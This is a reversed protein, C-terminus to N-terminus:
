APCSYRRHHQHGTIKVAMTAPLTLIWDRANFDYALSDIAQAARNPPVTQRRRVSIQNFPFLQELEERQDNSIRAMSGMGMQHFSSIDPTNLATLLAALQEHGHQWLYTQAVAFTRITTVKDLHYVGRPPIVPAMVWQLLGIQGPWLQANELAKSSELFQVLLGPDFDKLLRKGVAFPDKMFHKIAEIDGQPHTAKIKYNELRSIGHENKDDGEFVKKRIPDGFNSGGTASNKQSLDNHITIVLNTNQEVGRLDGISLRRVVVSALLWTPYDEDSIGAVVVNLMPKEDLLNGQIYQQLKIMAASELLHTQKLLMFANYEKFDNGSEKETRMIFEGWIPVMPRLALALVVLSLYDSKTYTRERTFPKDYTQEYVTEFRDPVIVDPRLLVWEHMRRLDHEEYLQKVMPMLSIILGSTDSVQEFTNRIKSMIDFIKQQQYDPLSAWYDNVLTSIDHNELAKKQFANVDFELTEGSHEIIATPRFELDLKIKM